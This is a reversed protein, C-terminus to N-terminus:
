QAPRAPVANIAAKVQEIVDDVAKKQQDTLNPLHALKDLEVGATDFTRYRLSFRIKNLSASVEPAPNPFQLQLQSLDVRGPVRATTAQKDSKGCGALALVGVTLIIILYNNTKMFGSRSGAANSKGPKGCGACALLGAIWNMIRMAM